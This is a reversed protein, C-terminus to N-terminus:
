HKGNGTMAGILFGAATAGAAALLGRHTTAWLQPSFTRAENDFPGHWGHDGPVPEFLNDPRGQPPMPQDTQQGDYGHEALYRDGYSPMLKNGIIAEDTPFGIYLERREPHHAAWYIGRAIVEPQYCAGLPRPTHPMKNRVWTFQTTNVGPLQVMTAKVNTKDHLLESYLSDMFGQIAHKTACYSSQLPIGRYALASGIQVITGRDRPLMRKLAAMTGYVYGLYNVETVRKYEEPKMEKIPAFVATMAVNIWIDIPGFRKEVADAAAEVQEPVAVDTPVVVAQGGQEECESKCSNLADPNRALLGIKAGQRAFEHATARGVGGSAGTIVVVESKHSGM